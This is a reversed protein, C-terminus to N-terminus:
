KTLSSEFVSSVCPRSTTIRFWALRSWRAWTMRLQFTRKWRSAFRRTCNSVRETM